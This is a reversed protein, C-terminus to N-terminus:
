FLTKLLTVLLLWIHIESGQCFKSDFIMTFALLLFGGISFGTNPKPVSVLTSNKKFSIHWRGFIGGAVGITYAHM